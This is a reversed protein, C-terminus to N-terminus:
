LNRLDEIRSAFYASKEPFKLSLKEYMDIAKDVRGQKILINALNESIIEPPKTSSASLDRDTFADKEGLNLTSIRPESKIFNDIIERQVSKRLRKSFQEVAGEDENLHGLKLPPTEDEASDLLKFREGPPTTPALLQDNLHTRSSESVLTNLDNLDDAPKEATPVPQLAVVAVEPEPEITKALHNEGLLLDKLTERDIAYTAARRLKQTALMTVKEFHGKAILMYALACYPFVTVVDELKELEDDSFGRPQQV